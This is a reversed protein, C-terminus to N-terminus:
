IFKGNVKLTTSLEGCLKIPEESGYTLLKATSKRTPLGIKRLTQKNIINVSSGTDVNM